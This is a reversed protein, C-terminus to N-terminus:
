WLHVARRERDTLNKDVPARSYSFNWRFLNAVPPLVASQIQIGNSITCHPRDLFPHLHLHYDEFPLPLKPTFKPREM